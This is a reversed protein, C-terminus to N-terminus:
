GEPLWPDIPYDTSSATREFPHSKQTARILRHGALVSLPIDGTPAWATGGAWIKSLGLLLLRTTEADVRYPQERM